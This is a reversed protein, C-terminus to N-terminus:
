RYVRDLLQLMLYFGPGAFLLSDIRDLMGGHGPILASADKVGAGRKLQSEFLDGAIGLGAIVLGLLAGLAPRFSLAPHAFFGAAAMVGAGAALGFLAGEVTKGPSVAALPTRGLWRGGYYQATESAVISGLLLLVAAPGASTSVAAVAGLPLGIYLLPFASAAADALVRDGRGASLSAAGVALLAALLVPAAAGYAVGAVTAAVGAAAVGRFVRAGFAAALGAYEHLALLAAVSALAVTAAPPLFRIVAVVVPLLTLASLVRKM